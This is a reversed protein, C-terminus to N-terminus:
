ISMTHLSVQKNQKAKQQSDQSIKLNEKGDISVIEFKYQYVEGRKQVTVDAMIIEGGNVNSYIFFNARIGVKYQKCFHKCLSKRIKCPKEVIKNELKKTQLCISFM